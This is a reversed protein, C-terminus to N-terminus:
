STSQIYYLSCSWMWYTKIYDPNGFQLIFVLFCMMCHGGSLRSVVYWKGIVNCFGTWHFTYIGICTWVILNLKGNDHIPLKVFKMFTKSNLLPSHIVPVQSLTTIKLGM